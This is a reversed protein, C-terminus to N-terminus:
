GDREGESCYGDAGVDCGDKRCFMSGMDTDERRHACEKCFVIDISPLAKLAKCVSVYNSNGVIVGRRALEIVDELKIYEAM